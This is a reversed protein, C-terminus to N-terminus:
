GKLAEDLCYKVLTLAKVGRVKTATWRAVQLIKANGHGMQRMEQYVELDREHQEPTVKPNGISQYFDQIIEDQELTPEPVKPAEKKPQAFEACRTGLADVQDRLVQILFNENSLRIALIEIVDRHIQAAM